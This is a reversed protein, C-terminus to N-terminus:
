ATARKSTQFAKASASKVLRIQGTLLQQMMGQKIQRAKVLQKELAELEADIDSLTMAIRKQDILSKPFAIDFESLAEKTITKITGGPAKKKENEFINEVQFLFFLRDLGEYIRQFFLLTRDCYADYQTLAIRGISGQITLIISGEPVFVSMPQALASIKYKTNPKLKRNKAVDFVQIFPTGNVEDYWKDLGYPQPFSGRRYDAVEGLKRIEWGQNPRLLEKMAGQKILHKKQLLTELSEIWGDANDLAEAIAEQELLPPVPISIKKFTTTAQAIAPVGTHGKTESIIDQGKNSHFFYVLFQSIIKKSNLSFRFQSQSIVYEEYESNYPIYAIQGLTGRHTVVIDGRKAVAKKLDKAKAKTVFNSHRNKLQIGSINYGNLVPVGQDTFNSVKIDSGFPGMSIETIIESIKKVEWDEPIWGIETHKMAAEM